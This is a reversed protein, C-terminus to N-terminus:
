DVIMDVLIQRHDLGNGGDALPHKHYGGLVSGFPLDSTKYFQGCDRCPSGFNSFTHDFKRKILRGVYQVSSENGHKVIDWHQGKSYNVKFGKPKQLEADSSTNWNGGIIVREGVALDSWYRAIEQTRCQSNNANPHVTVATITTRKNLLLRVRFGTFDYSCKPEKYGHRSAETPTTDDGYEDNRGYVSKSSDPILSLRASKWAICEHEHSANPAKADVLQLTFRDRSDGCVGRYGPPLIPGNVAKGTLQEARYVESFLIIDPKWTAIYDRVRKVDKARCLKLEWCRFQPSANGVNIALYRLRDPDEQAMVHPTYSLVYPLFLYLSFRYILRPSQHDLKVNKMKM